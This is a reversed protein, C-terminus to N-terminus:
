LLIKFINSLVSRNRYSILYTGSLQSPEHQYIDVEKILQLITTPTGSTCGYVKRALYDVLHEDNPKFRIGPTEAVNVSDNALLSEPDSSM